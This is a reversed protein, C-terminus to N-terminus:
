THGSLIDGLKHSRYNNERRGLNLVLSQIKRLLISHILLGVLMCQWILVAFLRKDSRSRIAHRELETHHRSSQMAVQGHDALWRACFPILRPKRIETVDANLGSLINQGWITSVKFWHYAPRSQCHNCPPLILLKLWRTQTM